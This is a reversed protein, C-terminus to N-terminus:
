PSLWHMNPLYTNPTLYTTYRYQRDMTTVYPTAWPGAGPNRAFIPGVLPMVAPHHYRVTATFTSREVSTTATNVPTWTVETACYALSLKTPGRTVFRSTGYAENMSWVSADPVPVNLFGAAVMGARMAPLSAGEQCGTFGSALEPVAPAIVKAAALRAKETILGRTATGNVRNHGEEVSWVALSRTAEYSALTTLLGAISNMAMQALGFTLLFFVPLVILTEAIITGKAKQLKVVKVQHVHMRGLRFIIFTLAWACAALGFLLVLPTVVNERLLTDTLGVQVLGLTHETLFFSIFVTFFVLTAMFHGAASAAIRSLRNMGVVQTSGNRESM